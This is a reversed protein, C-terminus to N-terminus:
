CRTSRRRCTSMSGHRWSRRPSPSTSRIRSWAMELAPMKQAGGFSMLLPVLTFLLINDFVFILATPVIAEQGFVALTLGPGMYGINPYAGAVAGITAERVQGRLAIMGVLFSLVFIAFTSLTTGIVFPWNNLQEFPAEAILKFFLAPLALYVIFFSMWQLGAEPYRLRRGCAYGLLILGFFPLALSVVSNL